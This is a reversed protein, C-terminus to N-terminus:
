KEKRRLRITVTRLMGKLRAYVTQFLGSVLRWTDQVMPQMRVGIMFLPTGLLVYVSMILGTTSGLLRLGLNACSRMLGAVLSSCKRLM